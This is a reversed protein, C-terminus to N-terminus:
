ENKMALTDAVVTLPFPRTQHAPMSPTVCIEHLTISPLTVVTIGIVVGVVTVVAALAAGTRIPYIAFLFARPVCLFARLVILFALPPLLMPLILLLLGLPALLPQALELLLLLPALLLLRRLFLPALLLRRLFLPALELLLFLPALLLRRLFLPALLLRHLQLLPFGLLSTALLGRLILMPIVSRVPSQLGLDSAGHRECVNCVAGPVKVRLADDTLASVALNVSGDVALHGHDKRRPDQVALAWFVTVREVPGGTRLNLGQGAEPMWVDDPEETVAQTSFSVHQQVLELGPAAQLILELIVIACPPERPAAPGMDSSTHCLRDVVEVPVIRAARAVVTVDLRRVDYQCQRSRRLEDVPIERNKGTSRTGPRLVRVPVAPRPTRPVGPYM